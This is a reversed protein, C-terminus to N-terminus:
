FRPLWKLAEPALSATRRSSSEELVLGFSDSVPEENGGPTIPTGSSTGILAEKWASRSPFASYAAHRDQSDGLVTAVHVGFQNKAMAYEVKENQCYGSAASMWAASCFHGLATLEWAECLFEALDRDEGLRLRSRLREPLPGRKASNFNINKKVKGPLESLWSSIALAWFPSLEDLAKLGEEDVKFSFGGEKTLLGDFASPALIPLKNSSSAQIQILVPVRIGNELSLTLQEHFSELGKDAASESTLVMAAPSWPGGVLPEEGEAALGSLTDDVVVIEVDAGTRNMCRFLSKLQRLSGLYAASDDLSSNLEEVWQVLANLQHEGAQGLSTPFYKSLNIRGLRGATVDDAGPVFAKSGKQEGGLVFEVVDIVLGLLNSVDAEGLSTQGEPAAVVHELLILAQLESRIGKSNDEDAKYAAVIQDQIEGLAPLAEVLDYRDGGVLEANEWDLDLTAVDADQAEIQLKSLQEPSLGESLEVSVSTPTESEATREQVLLTGITEGEKKVDFQGGQSKSRDPVAYTGKPGQGGRALYEATKERSTTASYALNEGFDLGAPGLGAIGAVKGQAVAAAARLGKYLSEVHERQSVIADLNEDFDAFFTEKHAFSIEHYFAALFRDKETGKETSEVRRQLRKLDVLGAAEPLKALRESLEKQTAGDKARLIELWDDRLSQLKEELTELIAAVPGGSKEALAKFLSLARKECIGLTLRRDEDLLITATMQDLTASYRDRDEKEIRDPTELEDSAALAAQRLSEKQAASLRPVRHKQNGVGVELAKRVRHRLDNGSTFPGEGQYKSVLWLVMSPHLLDTRVIRHVAESARLYARLCDALGFAELGPLKFHHFRAPAEKYEDTLDNIVTPDNKELASRLRRVSACLSKIQTDKRSATFGARSPDELSSLYVELERAAHAEDQHFCTLLRLILGQAELDEKLFDQLIAAEVNAPGGWARADRFVFDPTVRLLASAFKQGSFASLVHLSAVLDGFHKKGSRQADRWIQSQKSREGGEVVNEESRGSEDDAPRAEGRGMAVTSELLPSDVVVAFRRSAEPARLPTSVLFSNWTEDGIPLLQGGESTGCLNPQLVAFLDEATIRGDARPDGSFVYTKPPKSSFRGVVAIRRGSQELKRRFDESWPM